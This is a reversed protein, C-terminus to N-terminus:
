ALGAERAAAEAEAAAAEAYGPNAADWEVYSAVSERLAQERFHREVWASVNGGAAAAQKTIYDATAQELSLTMRAKMSLMM